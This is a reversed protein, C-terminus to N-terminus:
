SNLLALKKFKNELESEKGEIELVLKIYEIVFKIKNNNIDLGAYEEIEYSLCFIAYILKALTYYNTEKFWENNVGEILEKRIELRIKELNKTSFDEENSLFLIAEKIEETSWINWKCQEALAGLQYYLQEDYEGEEIMTRVSKAISEKKM